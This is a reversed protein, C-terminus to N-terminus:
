FEDPILDDMDEQKLCKMGNEMELSRSFDSGSRKKPRGRGRTPPTLLQLPPTLSSTDGAVSRPSTASFTTSASSDEERTLDQVVTKLKKRGRGGNRIPNQRLLTVRENREAALANNDGDGDDDDDNDQNESRNRKLASSRHENKITGAKPRGRRPGASEPVPFWKYGTAATIGFHLFLKIKSYKLDNADNFDIVGAIADRKRGYDFSGVNLAHTM